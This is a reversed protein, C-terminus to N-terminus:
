RSRSGSADKSGGSEQWNSGALGQGDKPDFLSTRRGPHRLNDDVSKQLTAIRADYFKNLQCQVPAQIFDLVPKGIFLGVVLAVLFGMIARIMRTRLEEIHDGFSMRTHAFLDDDDRGLGAFGPFNMVPVEIVITRAGSRRGTRRFFVPIPSSSDNRVM